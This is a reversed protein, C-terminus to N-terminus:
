GLANKMAEREAASMAAVKAAVAANAALRDREAQLLRLEGKLADRAANKAAIEADIQELTKEAM